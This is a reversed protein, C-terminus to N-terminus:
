ELSLQYSFLCMALGFISQIKSYIKPQMCHTSSRNLKQCEVHFASIAAAKFCAFSGARHGSRTPIMRQIETVGYSWVGLYYEKVGWFRFDENIPPPPSPPYQSWNLAEGSMGSQFLRPLNFNYLSACATFFLNLNPPYKWILKLIM